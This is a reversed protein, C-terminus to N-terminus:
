PLLKRRFYDVGARRMNPVFTHRLHHFVVDRIGAERCATEFARRVSGIRKGVYTFVYPVRRGESDLYITANQLTESLEKTMPVIRGEQTKPAVGFLVGRFDVRDWKHPRHVTEALRKDPGIRERKRRGITGASM